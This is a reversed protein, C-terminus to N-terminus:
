FGVISFVTFLMSCFQAWSDETVEREGDYGDALVAM